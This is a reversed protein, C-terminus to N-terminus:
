GKLSVNESERGLVMSLSYLLMLFFTNEGDNFTVQTLGSVLFAVWLPTVLSTGLDKRMKIERLWLFIWALFSIGGLVGSTALIELFDNHAHGGFEPHPLGYKQKISKSHPEYNLYGWGLVPKEQFAKIAGLWCGLREENSGRRIIQQEMFDSRYISLGGVCVMLLLVGFVTLKRHIVLCGALFAIWAGRVHSTFLGFLFICLFFILWRLSILHKVKESQFALAAVGLSLWAISHGYTMVMGFLGGNRASSVTAMRLPNYGTYYGILGSVTAVSASVLLTWLLEKLMKNKRESSLYEQFYFSFPVISLAGIWYYKTKLISKMPISFDSANFLVSLVLSLSFFLLAWGSKPFKKWRYKPLYFLIAPAMLLHFGSMLSISTLLGAALVFLAVTVLPM